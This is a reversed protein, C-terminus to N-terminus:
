KYAVAFSVESAYTGPTAAGNLTAKFKAGDTKLDTVAVTATQNSSSIDTAATANVPTLQTWAGTATGGHNALGTTSLGPSAFTIDADTMGTLDCNPDTLKLAFDVPTAAASVLTNGLQIVNSTAGGVDTTIDCTKDSVTGLFQIDGSNAGALASGSMVTLSLVSIALLKKKM